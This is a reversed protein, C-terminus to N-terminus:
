ITDWRGRAHGTAQHGVATMIVNHRSHLVYVTNLQAPVSQLRPVERWVWLLEGRQGNEVETFETEFVELAEFTELPVQYSYYSLKLSLIRDYQFKASM